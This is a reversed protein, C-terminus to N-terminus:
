NDEFEAIVKMGDTLIRSITSYPGTVIWVSDPSGLGSLIEIDGIDQIGTEVQVKRVTSTGAEYIFVGYDPTVSQLPVTVTSDRRATKIEVSASMGPRFPYAPIEGHPEPLIRIKVEFTTVDSLIGAASTINKASNAIKTVTGKFRRGPYADVDIDATDGKSIRIIDNENVDAVVEMENLDAIRLMETGAMQSTGVVREGTEVCLVSVIGDIPSRITTRTLNDEAEKLSAEANDIDYEYAELQAKAMLYEAEASEYEQLSVSQREYLRRSRMYSQRSKDLSAEQQAYRAKAANLAAEAQARVSLYTDQRIRLLLDGKGVTDGEDVYLEVIEGSVDPSIPVETVPQIKGNAPIRETISGTDPRSVTVTEETGSRLAGITLAATVALATLATIRIAKRRKKGTKM